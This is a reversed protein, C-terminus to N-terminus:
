LDVHHHQVLFILYSFYHQMLTFLNLFKQEIPSVMESMMGVLGVTRLSIDDDTFYKPVLSDKVFEKIAYNDIYSRDIKTIDNAAM